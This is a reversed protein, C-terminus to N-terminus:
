IIQKDKHILYVIRVSIFFYHFLCTIHFIFMFLLFSLDCLLIVLDNDLILIFYLSLLFQLLIQIISFYGQRISM